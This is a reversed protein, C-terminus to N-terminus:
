KEVDERNLSKILKASEQYEILIHDLYRQCNDIFVKKNMNTYYNYVKDLVHNDDLSIQLGVGYKEVEIGMFSDSICIQPIKFIVGDYLKNGMALMTNRDFYLNHIIDTKKVFDYRDSPSYEGHFFVNDIKKHCVYEKLNKAEGEERGYYHLEFRKDHGVFDIFKANLSEQRILGWFCIRIRGTSSNCKKYDRHSLSDYLFNHTIHFKNATRDPFLTLFGRSSCFSFISKEVLDEITKRYFTFHEYTTDRYDLIFRYKYHKLLYKKVLFAPPTHLVIILDFANKKLFGMLSKRYKLFCRIKKILNWDDRIKQKFEHLNYCDYGKLNEYQCDRNWYFISIKNNANTLNELYFNM